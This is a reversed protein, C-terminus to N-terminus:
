PGHSGTRWTLYGAQTFPFTMSTVPTKATYFHYFSDHNSGPDLTKLSSWAVNLPISFFFMQLPIAMGPDSQNSTGLM